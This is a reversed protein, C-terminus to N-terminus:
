LKFQLKGIVTVMCCKKVFHGRNIVQNMINRGRADSIFQRMLFYKGCVTHM